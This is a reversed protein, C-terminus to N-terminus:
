PGPDLRSTGPGEPPSADEVGRGWPDPSAGHFTPARRKSHGRHGVEDEGPLIARLGESLDCTLLADGPGEPAGDFLLPDAVGVEEGSRPTRALGGRGAQEGLGEVALRTRSSLGAAGALSADGEIGPALDVDDLNIRGRVGAHIVNTIEAVLRSVDRELRSVLDEDDVLHVHERLRCEVRQQLGELLRRRM